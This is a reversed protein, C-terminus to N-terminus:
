LYEQLLKLCDMDHIKPLIEKGSDYPGGSKKKFLLSREIDGIKTPSSEFATGYVKHKETLANKFGLIEINEPAYGFGLFFVKTAKAILQVMESRDHEKREHITQINNLLKYLDKIPYEHKNSLPEINLYPIGDDNEWPLDAIKGYVHFFPIKNIQDKIEEPSAKSYSNKLNEYLFHELSRDYNFTIFSVNNQGFKKYGSPEFPSEDIKRFLYSYWDQGPIPAKERFQSSKECNLLTLVIALKATQSFHNNKAVYSDISDTTKGLKKALSIAHPIIESKTDSDMDAISAQKLREPHNNLIEIRLQQGTPYGYPMSAGAGLIFVTKERIM